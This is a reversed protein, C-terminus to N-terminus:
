TTRDWCSYDQSVFYLETEHDYGDLDNSLSCKFATSNDMAVHVDEALEKATDYRTAWINILIHANELNSFGSLDTIHDASVRQYTIAPFTPNQPMVVPYIRASTIASVTTNGSLVSYIKTELIAM